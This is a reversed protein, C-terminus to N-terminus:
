ENGITTRLLLLILWFGSQRPAWQETEGPELASDRRRSGPATVETAQGARGSGQSPDSTLEVAPLRLQAPCGSLPHAMEPTGSRLGSSQGGRERLGADGGAPAGWGHQPLPTAAPTQSFLSRSLATARNVNGHTSGTPSQTGCEAALFRPVSPAGPEQTRAPCSRLGRSRENEGLPVWTRHSVALESDSLESMESCNLYYCYFSIRFWFSFSGLFGM